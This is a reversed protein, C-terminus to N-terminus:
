SLDLVVSKADMWERLATPGNATGGTGSEKHGGFPVAWHLAKYTNVWVSGADLRRALRHARGVDGTWLGAALGYPTDNAIMIAEDESRFPIAVAVPGFIEEQSVRLSNDRTAFLTPEVFYGHELSTSSVVDAGVRGGTVLSAGESRGLEVYSQVAKFQGATAIPGMGTGPDLPDGVQIGGARVRLREVFDDYVSEEVLIRSGAVCAQGANPTFIGASAGAAARDLDADAFVINPSKGGLELLLNKVNGAARDIIRRGTETSGTFSIKGIGRHSSIADGVTSGRGSVVQVMGPPIDLEDFLRTAALIGASAQQAPKVIIANGAALAATAKAFFLPLPGNWPIILACVGVPEWVTYAFASPRVDITDGVITEALGALYRMQMAAGPIQTHQTENLPRGNDRTEIEGLWDASAEVADAWSRLRAARVAMPVTRWDSDDYAARASRVADELDDVDSDPVQAWVDGTAPNVSDLWGGARAPRHEGAIYNLFQQM